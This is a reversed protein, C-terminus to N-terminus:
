DFALEVDLNDDTIAIYLFIIGSIAILLSGIFSLTVLNKKKNSDSSKLNRLSDISSKLFYIYIIVLITCIFVNIRQYKNKSNIDNNIYYKKEYENSIFSTIIIGILVIWILDETNIEKIKKTIEEEDM